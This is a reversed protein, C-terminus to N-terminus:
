PGARQTYFFISLVLSLISLLLFLIPKKLSERHTKSTPLGIDSTERAPQLVAQMNHHSVTEGPKESVSDMTTKGPTEAEEIADDAGKFPAQVMTETEKLKLIYFFVEKGLGMGQAAEYVDQADVAAKGKEFAANLSRDCLSNILRPTGGSPFALSLAELGTDTFLSPHGGAVQIRHSVYKHMSDASMKGLIELTAIRQKFPEMDPKDITEMLEPQGLLLIQILKASGEELNNLLRLGSIVDDSILHSEDIIALCRGGESRIKLLANRIDRIVFTRESTSPKLGLEQAIFLFLDERNGPPEAMWILRKDRSFESKIIMQSLTTKGSGIPGAVVMLGRGAKLSDAIRGRARGYDGQDFFFIPDPVNEFPLTKLAFHEAYM